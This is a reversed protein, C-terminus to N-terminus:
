IQIKMISIIKLMIPSMLLKIMMSIIIIFPSTDFYATDNSEYINPLPMCIDSTITGLKKSFPFRNEHFIVHYSVEVKHTKLNLYMYCKTNPQFGIFVGPTACSDLKKRHSSLTTAYCLCGFIRLMSIDCLKGQLKEYPSSNDLLPTPICNILYVAYLLAYNWFSLPLDSHFM